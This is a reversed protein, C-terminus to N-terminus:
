SFRRKIEIMRLCARAARGGVDDAGNPDARNMALELEEVQRERVLEEVQQGPALEGVLREQVPELGRREQVPELVQLVVVM